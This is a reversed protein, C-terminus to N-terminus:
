RGRPGYWAILVGRSGAQDMAAITVDLPPAEASRGTWRRLPDFMEHDLSAPTPHQMWADVIM